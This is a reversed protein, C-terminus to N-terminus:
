SELLAMQAELIEIRDELSSISKYYDFEIVPALDAGTSEINTIKKYTKLNIITELQALLTSDTIETTVPTALKYVVTAGTTLQGTTSKYETTITEGNYSAIKANNKM